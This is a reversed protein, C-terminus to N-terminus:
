RFVVLKKAQSTYSSGDSSVRVRYVYVGTQLLQGNSCTLDWTYTYPGAVSVNNDKHSWLQRGTADFVDIVVTMDSGIRDHTVVFTTSTNAPNQTLSVSWITPRLAAVVNFNLITTSSNNFIDWARFQLRHQGVSLEPISYEVSGSTYSGFDYVFTDNLNYTMAADGDISLVLDHGIGIGTTNIGDEDYIQAVFYPTPNVNGGDVFSSSNLYCFLSPGISDNNITETGGLIISENYGHATQTADDTNAFLTILGSKNSYNIDMPVAFSIEFQGDEVKNTGNFITKTRDTYTFATSAGDSSTDNLRGKITEESDRVIASLTGNFELDTDIHGVITATSGARLDVTSNTVDVGNVEDVYIKLRPINLRVAPDGLLSYQLKNTTRDQGSTILYNKTIRQAEGLTVFDDGSTDTVNTLFAINMRRNYTSYVTRTTGFFAFAGGNANLVATEGITSVTGDFPMVDCSATIWLSLNENTFAAFDNISLVKEHSLQTESGHGGYDFLLAGSQQQEKLLTTIEPYTNGSASSVREYTDWMVKKILFEPHDKAVDDAAENIDTMHVNDNGDDGMFVLTNQWAGANKNEVYAITKDVMAQAEKETTVPFRGVAVDLLDSTQPNSGEGEDLLCFFGDDVFCTIENFSDESEFCLLYDDPSLNQTTTTLMRNDWVCDGFLLLYKPYDDETEARDYLMKLYRRYANADPTGSSFENYLEDAPVINVRMGDHEEHFAKLREAQSLLKQSTPIIMVMDAFSDAHHNQNTINYVYEAQPHSASLTYDERPLDYAISIYDLRIPGSSATLTITNTAKLNTSAHTLTAAAGKDYSGISTRVTGITSDNLAITISTATGATVNVYVTGSTSGTDNTLTYTRSAGAQIATPDVLNRGGQFWAYGDDEYLSHYDDTAHFFESVFTASDVTLVDSGETIFYYGYDSYPNRTRMTTTATEWSVPGKAYFLHRGGVVCQPVESLDDTEMLYEEHISEPQLTGGYGYIKVRNIDSFGAASVVSSPLETIGTESVRIKAWQGQSLVSETAYTQARTTRARSPSDKPTSEIKLMFSVLWKYAGDRYVLPVLHVKLFPRKRDYVIGCEVEPLSGLPEGCIANYMEVDSPAMNIFEPYLLTAVYTSDAHDMPLAMEYDVHPLVSDIRVDDTTLYILREQAVVITACFLLLYTLVIKRMSSLIVHSPSNKNNKM